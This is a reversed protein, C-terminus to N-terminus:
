QSRNYNRLLSTPQSSNACHKGLWPEASCRWPNRSFDHFLYIFIKFYRLFNWIDRSISVKSELDVLWRVYCTFSLKQCEYSKFVFTFYHSIKTTTFFQWFRGVNLINEIDQRRIQFGTTKWPAPTNSNASITGGWHDAWYFAKNCEDFFFGQHWLSGSSGGGPLEQKLVIPSSKFFTRSTAIFMTFKIFCRGRLDRM